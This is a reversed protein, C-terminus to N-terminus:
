RSLIAINDGTHNLDVNFGNVVLWRMMADTMPAGVAWNHVEMIILRIGKLDAGILLEIEGGEIDCILVSARHNQIQDELCATPVRVTKIIDQSIPGVHLRSAWFDRSISFEVEGPASGFRLRNCLVAVRSQIGDLDNFLFNKRADAAIQPNAEFSLVHKAGVIRAATMTVAGLATGVELVRDGTKILKNVLTRERREYWGETLTKIVIPSYNDNDVFVSVSGITKIFGQRGDHLALQRQEEELAAKRLERAFNEQLAKSNTKNVKEGLVELECFHLVDEAELQVRLYRSITDPPLNISYPELDKVGFDADDTKRHLVLWTSGDLSGLLRFHRMRYACVQRNFVRVESIICLSQLDVQWWPNPEHNTHFGPKGDVTGNNAGAADAEPAPFKSWQSVSSQTAPRHLALNAAM